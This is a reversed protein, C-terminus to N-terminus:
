KRRPFLQGAFTRPAVPKNLPNNLCFLGKRAQRTSSEEFPALTSFTSEMSKLDYISLNKESDTLPLSDLSPSEFISSALSISRCLYTAITQGSCVSRAQYDQRPTLCLCSPVPFCAKTKPFNESYEVNPEPTLNREIRKRIHYLRNKSQRKRHVHRTYRKCTQSTPWSEMIRIKKSKNSKKLIGKIKKNRRKQVRLPGQHFKVRKKRKGHSKCKEYVHKERRKSKINKKAKM